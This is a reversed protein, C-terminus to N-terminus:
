KAKNNKQKDDNEEAMWDITMNKEATTVDNLKM